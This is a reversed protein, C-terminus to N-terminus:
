ITRKLIIQENDSAQLISYYDNVKEFLDRAVTRKQTQRERTIVVSDNTVHVKYFYYLGTQNDELIYETPVSEIEYGEPINITIIDKVRNPFSYYFNSYREDDWTTTHVNRRIKNPNIIIRDDTKLVFEDPHYTVSISKEDILFTDVVTITLDNQIYKVLKEIKGEDNNKKLSNMFGLSSGSYQIDSKIDIRNADINSIEHLGISSNDEYGSGPTQVIEIDNGKLVVGEVEQSKWYPENVKAFSVTPDLYYKESGVEALVLVHDFQEPYPFSAVPDGNTYFRTLVPYARIGAEKLMGMLFVALDENNGHRDSFTTKSPKASFNLGRKGNFEINEQVWELLTKIILSKNEPEVGADKLIKSAEPIKAVHNTYKIIPIMDKWTEIVKELRYRSLVAMIELGNKKPTAGLFEEKIMPLNNGVLRTVEFRGAALKSTSHELKIQEPKNRYSLIYSVGGTRYFNYEVHRIPVAEHFVFPLIYWIVDSEFNYHYELISGATVDPFTFSKFNNDNITNDYITKPDLEVISGDPHITRAAIEIFVSNRHAPINITAFEIGDLSYIKRQEKFEYITKQSPSIDSVKKGYAWVDMKKYLIEAYIEPHNPIETWSLENPDVSLWNVKACGALLLIFLVTLLFVTRKM